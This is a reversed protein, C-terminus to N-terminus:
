FGIHRKPDHDDVIVLNDAVPDLRQQRFFFAQRDGTFGATHPFGNLAPLPRSRIDHYHIDPNRVPAREGGGPLDAGAEGIRLDQHQRGEGVVLRQESRDHGPSRSVDELLYMAAIQHAGNPGDPGTLVQEIRGDRFGNEIAKALALVQEAILPKGPERGLLLADEALNRAALRVSLDAGGPFEVLLGYLVVYRGDEGLELHRSPGPGGGIECSVGLGDSSFWPRWM